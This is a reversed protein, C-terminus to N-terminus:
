ADTPKKIERYCCWRHLGRQFRPARVAIKEMLTLVESAKSPEAAIKTQHKFYNRQSEEHSGILVRGM